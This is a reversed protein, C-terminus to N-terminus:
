PSVCLTRGLLSFSSGWGKAREVGPRRSAGDGKLKQKGAM